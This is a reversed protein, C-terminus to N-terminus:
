SFYYYCTEVVKYNDNYLITMVVRDAEITAKECDGYCTIWRVLFVELGLVRNSIIVVQM